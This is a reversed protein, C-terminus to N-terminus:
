EDVQVYNAPFLGTKGQYEGLWWDEDPFEQKFTLWQSRERERQCEREVKPPSPAMMLYASLSEGAIHHYRRRPLQNRQGRGNFM